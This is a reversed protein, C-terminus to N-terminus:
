AAIIEETLVLELDIYRALTILGMFCARATQRAIEGKLLRPQGM